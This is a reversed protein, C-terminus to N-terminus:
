SKPSPAIQAVSDRVILKHSLYIHQPEADITSHIRSLLMDVAIKSMSDPFSNVTTLPPEMMKGIQLNDYGTLSIDQPIKLQHNRISDFAAEAMFENFCHIATPPDPLELLNSVMQYGSEYSHEGNCIYEPRIPINNETLAKKYGNLRQELITMDYRYGIFGIKRHGKHILYNVIECTGAFDTSDIRDVDDVDGQISIVPLYAQAKKFDERCETVNCSGVIIGASRSQTLIDLFRRLKQADDNFLCLSLLYGHSSLEKEIYGVLEAFFPNSINPVLFGVMNNTSNNVIGRALGNPVYNLEKAKELIRRSTAEKIQGTHNLVRSVTSASVNCAQAVDKITARQQYSGPKKTTM